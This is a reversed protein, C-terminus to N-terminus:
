KLSASMAPTPVFVFRPSEWGARLVLVARKTPDAIRLPFTRASYNDQPGLEAFAAELEAANTINYSAILQTTIKEIGIPTIHSWTLHFTTPNEMRGLAVLGPQRQTICDAYKRLGEDTLFDGGWIQRYNDVHDLKLSAFRTQAADRAATINAADSVLQFHNPSGPAAAKFREYETRTMETVVALRQVESLASLPKDTFDTVRCPSAAASGAAMLALLAAGAALRKTKMNLEKNFDCTWASQRPRVRCKWGASAM